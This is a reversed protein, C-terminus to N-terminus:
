FETKQNDAKNFKMILGNLHMGINQSSLNFKEVDEDSIFNLKNAIILLTEIETLKQHAMSLQAKRDQYDQTTMGNSICIPIEIAKSKLQDIITKAEEEPFISTLVYVNKVLELSDKWVSLNTFSHKNKM